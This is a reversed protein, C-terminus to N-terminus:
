GSLFLCVLLRVAQWILPGPMRGWPTWTLRLIYEDQSQRQPLESGLAAQAMGPRVPNDRDEMRMDDNDLAAM